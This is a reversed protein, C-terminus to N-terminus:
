AAIAHPNAWDAIKQEMADGQYVIDGGTVEIYQKQFAGTKDRRIFVKKAGIARAVRNLWQGYSKTCGEESQMKEMKKEIPTLVAIAKKADQLNVRMYCDVAVEMGYMGTFQYCKSGQSHLKITHLPHDYRDVSEPMGDSSLEPKCIYGKIHAFDGDFETWVCIATEHKM